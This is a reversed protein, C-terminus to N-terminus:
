PVIERDDELNLFHVIYPDSFDEQVGQFYIIKLQIPRGEM